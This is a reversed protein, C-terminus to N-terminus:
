FINESPSFLHSVHFQASYAGVAEYTISVFYKFPILIDGGLSMPPHFYLCWTLEMELEADCGGGSTISVDGVLDGVHFSDTELMTGYDGCLWVFVNEFFVVDQSCIHLYCESPAHSIASELSRGPLFSRIGEFKETVVVCMCCICVFCVSYFICYNNASYWVIWQM